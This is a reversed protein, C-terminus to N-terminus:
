DEGAVEPLSGLKDEISITSLHLFTVFGPDQLVADPNAAFAKPIDDSLRGMIKLVSEANEKSINKPFFQQLLQFILRAESAHGIGQVLTSPSGTKASQSYSHLCRAVSNLGKSRLEAPKIQAQLVTSSLLCVFVFIVRKM